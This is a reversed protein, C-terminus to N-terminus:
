RLHERELDSNERIAKKKAMPVPMPPTTLGHNNALRLEGCRHSRSCQDFQNPTNRGFKSRQFIDRSRQSEDFSV